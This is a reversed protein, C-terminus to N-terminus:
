RLQTGVLIVTVNDHGGRKKAEAVLTRVRQEITLPLLLASKIEDENMMDTLGDSCLLYLDGDVIPYSVITPEVCRQTGVAKTLVHHCGMSEIEDMRYCGSELLEQELSHDVTLQQIQDGRLRYIRSDGVHTVVVSAETFALSCFTTGMGELAHDVRAMTYVHRNAAELGRKVCQALGVAQLPIPCKKKESLFTDLFRQIAQQSAVEGANHGGMGDALIFLAEEQSAFWADENNTRVCGVDSIAHSKCHM